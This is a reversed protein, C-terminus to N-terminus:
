TYRVGEGRLPEGNGPSDGPGGEPEDEWRKGNLWSSPYPIYAGGDRQWDGSRKDRELAAAMIRCLALDPNLKRWAKRAAEKKKRRNKPYSNWFREFLEWDVGRRAGEPDAAGVDGEPPSYPTNNKSTNNMCIHTKSNKGLGGKDNKSIPTKDNKGLGGEVPHVVFAGAYIRRESGNKVAAMECRIYGRRELQAILRSITSVSLDYLGAFYENTAWCYGYQNCLATLEGYLLKANPKLAKDYRVDAVIVAYYAPSPGEM